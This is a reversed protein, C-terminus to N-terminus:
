INESGLHFLGRFIQALVFGLVWLDLPYLEFNITIPIAEELVNASSSFNLNNHKDNHHLSIRKSRIPFPEHLEIDPLDYLDLM